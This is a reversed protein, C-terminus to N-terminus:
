VAWKVSKSCNLTLLWKALKPYVFFPHENQQSQNFWPWYDNELSKALWFNVKCSSPQAAKQAVQGQWGHM